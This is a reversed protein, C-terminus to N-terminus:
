HGPAIHIRGLVLHDADNQSSTTVPLRMGSDRHYLGVIVTYDGVTADAPVLLARCDTVPQSPTMDTFPHLGNRPEGDSQAVLSGEPGLLQVFVSYPQAVPERVTWRLAVPVTDGPAAEAPLSSHELQIGHAFTEKHVIPAVECPRLYLVARSHGHEQALVRPAHHELWWGAPNIPHQIPVQYTVLWLREHEALLAKIQEDVRDISFWGLYYRADVRPAHLRLMGEQWIYSVIVGDDPRALLRITDGLPRVDEAPPAFARYARPLTMSWALMLALGVPVAWKKLRTLGSAALICLPPVLYLFFRPALFPIRRQAVYGAVVPVILAMALISRRADRGRYVEWVAPAALTALALWAWQGHGYPGAALTQVLGRLYSLLDAAGREMPVNQAGAIATNWTLIVWPLMLTVIGVQAVVWPMLRRRAAPWGPRDLALWGALWVLQAVSIFIAYYHTGLALVSALVYAVWLTISARQGSQGEPAMARAFLYLALIGFLTVFPYGKAERSYYVAMPALSMLAGALLGAITGSQWRAWHYVLLVTLVGCVVSLLRANYVSDGLLALWLGLTLRHAPPNTDNTLRSYHLVGAPGAHAFYANNGEDWWLGFRDLQWVRLGFSILLIVLLVTPVV